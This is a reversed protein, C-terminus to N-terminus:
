LYKQIAKFYRDNLYNIEAQTPLLINGRPSRTPKSIQYNLKRQETENGAKVVVETTGELQRLVFPRLSNLMAGTRTFDVRDSPYGDRERQKKYGDSYPTFPVGDSNTGSRRIRLRILGIFDLSLGMVLEVREAAQQKIRYERDRIFFEADM